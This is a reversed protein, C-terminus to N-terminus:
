KKPAGNRQSARGHRFKGAPTVPRKGKKGGVQPNEKKGQKNEQQTTKTANTRKGFDM